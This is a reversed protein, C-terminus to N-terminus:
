PAGESPPVPEEHSVWEGEVMKWKLPALDFNEPVEIRMEGPLNSAVFGHCVLVGDAHRLFAHRQIM